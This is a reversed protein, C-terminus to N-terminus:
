GPQRRGQSGGWDPVAGIEPEALAAIGARLDDPPTSSVQVSRGDVPHGFVLRSAHLWQRGPDGRHRGRRGGYARDGVVPHGISALHVRIQHTRGTELHVELLAADRWAAIRRFHTRAPRGDGVLAMRTPHHPDRGIPADVTGRGGEPIGEVLALYTREIRRLRLEEQLLEFTAASRAVLLLGSTDRDLRHVLGWRYKELGALDP